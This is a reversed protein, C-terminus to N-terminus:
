KSFLTKYYEILKETIHEFTYPRIVTTFVENNKEKDHKIMETIGKAIETPNDKVLKIVKEINLAVNNYNKDEEGIIVRPDLVEPIVGTKTAVVPVKLALAELIVIPHLDRIATCAFVDSTAIIDNKEKETLSNPHVIIHKKLNLKNILYILNQLYKTDSPPGAIYVKFDNLEQQLHYSAKILLHQGKRPHIRSIYTIVTNASLKNHIDTEPEYELLKAPVGPYRVVAIRSENIGESILWYKEINTHAIFMNIKNQNRVLNWMVYKFFIRALLHDIGTAIPFHLQAVLKYRLNEKWRMAQFLHPHLNHSHVIDPKIGMLVERLGRMITAYGVRLYSPELRHIYIEEEVNVGPSAVRKWRNDHTTTIIHVEFGRKSLERATHYVIYEVGGISPKYFPTIIVVRMSVSRVLGQPTTGVRFGCPGRSSFTAQATFM